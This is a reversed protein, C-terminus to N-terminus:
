GRNASLEALFGAVLEKARPLVPEGADLWHIEPDDLRFWSYQQRVFRHTSTKIQRVAEALTVEGRLYACIQRYGIGSMSPLECGYGSAILAEVEQLLGAEMMQDVREDIRRYLAARDMTLGIRLVRWPPQSAGQQESFRRGTLEYVELARVVRRVNRPDIRAAAVPDVSRLRGYLADGGHERAFAELRRRVGEDPGVRPIAFGGLAARVYLGTGGVVIPLRGRRHIAEIAAYADAQYVALSYPEDPEVVDILHHPVAAREAPTVKATGIDMRRYVQRSDASVIEGEFAQALAIGLASKGVATPGVVAVVGRVTEVDKTAMLSADVEAGSKMAPDTGGALASGRLRVM